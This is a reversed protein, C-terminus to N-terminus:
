LAGPSRARPHVPLWARTLPGGRDHRQPGGRRPRRGARHGRPWRAACSRWSSSRGPPPLSSSSRRHDRAGTARPASQRGRARERPHRARGAPATLRITGDVVEVAKTEVLAAGCSASWSRTAARHPRSRRRSSPRVPAPMPRARSACSSRWRRPALARGAAAPRRRRLPAPRRADRLADRACRGRHRPVHGAGAARASGAARALHRLLLLTPADAWHGDEIVLLIPRRRSIGALLDTVATHLRHRETDPDAKVPPPLDGVRAPCTPSCGRSSAAGPASRPACSPRSSSARSTTSRRSSRGTPRTCSPTAPATSSWRATAPRRARRVRARAPEQGLRARRGAARGPPGRRAGDADAGAPNRARGLSRRVSVDVAPAALGPLEHM